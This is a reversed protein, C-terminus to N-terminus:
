SLFARHVRMLIWAPVPFLAVALAAQMAAPKADLMTAATVSFVAWQVFACGLAVTGFGLWLMGFSNGLFYRRQSMLLWYSLVFLLSTLGLPQGSLLDHLIGLLFAVSPKLLDPRHIAWYFVAMLGLPLAVTSYGPLQTPAMAVLTFLLTLAFPLINRGTQDLRQWIGVAM